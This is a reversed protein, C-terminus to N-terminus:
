SCARTDRRRTGRHHREDSPTVCCPRSAARTAARQLHRRRTIAARGAVRRLPPPDRRRGSRGRDPQHAVALGPRLAPVRRRGPGPSVREHEGTAPPAPVVDPRRQLLPQQQVRDAIRGPQPLALEVPAAAVRAQVCETLISEEDEVQEGTDDEDADATTVSSEAFSTPPMQKSDGVVVVSSARGMAGIADAVRVQSAEDFVVIDFLDAKAPFFRAVSDPSVLVCPMARTILDGFQSMLERVRMGGRQRSIQRHLLGVRGGTTTPDFSRSRLVQRPLASRSSTAVSIAPASTAPSPANRPPPTSIPSAARRIAARRHVRHRPRTRLRAAADDVALEGRLIQERLTTSTSPACRNSTPSCPSGAVCRVPRTTASRANWSPRAGVPRRLGRRDRGPLRLRGTRHPLRDAPRRGRDRSRAVPAPDVSTGRGLFERLPEIFPGRGRNSRLAAWRLDDLREDLM